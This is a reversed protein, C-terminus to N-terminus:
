CHQKFVQTIHVSVGTDRSMELDQWIYANLMNRRFCHNSGLYRKKTMHDLPKATAVKCSTTCNNAACNKPLFNRKNYLKALNQIVYDSLNLHLSTVNEEFKVSISISEYHGDYLDFQNPYLSIM